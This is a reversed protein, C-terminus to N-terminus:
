QLLRLLSYSTVFRLLLLLCEKGGDGNIDSLGGRCFVKGQGRGM